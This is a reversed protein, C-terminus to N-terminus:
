PEFRDWQDGREVSFDRDWQTEFIIPGLTPRNKEGFDTM